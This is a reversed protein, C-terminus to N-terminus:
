KNAVAGGMSFSAEPGNAADSTATSEPDSAPHQVNAVDRDRLQRIPQFVTRRTRHAPLAPEGFRDALETVSIDGVHLVGGAVQFRAAVLSAALPGSVDNEM